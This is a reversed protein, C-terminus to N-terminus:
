RGSLKIFGFISVFIISASLVVAFIIWAAKGSKKEFEARKKIPELRVCSPCMGRFNNYQTESIEEGCNVCNVM